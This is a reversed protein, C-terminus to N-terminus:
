KKNIKLLDYYKTKTFEIYQDNIEENALLCKYNYMKGKKKNFLKQYKELGESPNKHNIMFVSKIEDYEYKDSDIDGLRAYYTDSLIRNMMLYMTYVGASDTSILGWIAGGWFKFGVLHLDFDGNYFRNYDEIDDPKITADFMNAFDDIDNCDEYNDRVLHALYGKWKYFKKLEDINNFVILFSRIGM